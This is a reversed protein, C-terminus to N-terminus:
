RVEGYLADALLQVTAARPGGNLSWAKARRAYLQIDYELMFGYGGHFHLSTLAARQAVDGAFLFAMRALAAAEPQDTELAWAAKQCLLRAGDVDTAVDALRHAVTQFSGIAVGFQHREQVYGVGIELARAALGVLAAGALARWEDRVREVQQAGVVHRTARTTDVDALASAGLSPPATGPPDQEVMVLEDGDGAVVVDAVAGHSVLRITGGALRRPCFTVVRGDLLGAADGTAAAVARAAVAAEVVPAPALWRGAAEAGIGLEVLGGGLGGDREAVGIGPIGVGALRDYLDRDFGLPEAARVREPSSHKELVATVVELLQEQEASLHLDM